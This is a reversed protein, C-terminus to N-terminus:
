RLNQIHITFVLESLISLNNLMLRLADWEMVYMNNTMEKENKADMSIHKMSKEDNKEHRHVKNARLTFLNSYKKKM